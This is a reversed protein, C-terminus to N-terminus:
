CFSAVHSNIFCYIYLPDIHCKFYFIDLVMVLSPHLTFNWNFYLSAFHLKGKSNQRINHLTQNRNIWELSQKTNHKENLLSKITYFSPALSRSIGYEKHPNKISEMELHFTCKWKLAYKLINYTADFKTDTELINTLSFCHRHFFFNNKTLPSIWFYIIFM